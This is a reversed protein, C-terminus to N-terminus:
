YYIRKRSVSPYPEARILDFQYLDAHTCKQESRCPLKVFFQKRKDTSEFVALTNRKAKWPTPHTNQFSLQEYNLAAPALVSTTATVCRLRVTLCLLVILLCCAARAAAAAARAVAMVVIADTTDSPLTSESQNRLRGNGQIHIPLDARVKRM